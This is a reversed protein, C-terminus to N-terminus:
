SYTSYAAFDIIEQLKEVQTKTLSQCIENLNIQLEEQVEKETNVFDYNTIYAVENEFHGRNFCKINKSKVNLKSVFNNIASLPDGEKGCTFVSVCLYGNEDAEPYEHIDASSEALVYVGTAAENTFEHIKEAVVNLNSKKLSEKFLKLADEPYEHLLIDAIAHTGKHEYIYKKM